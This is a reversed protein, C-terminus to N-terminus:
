VHARGIKSAGALASAWCACASGCAGAVSCAAAGDDAVSSSATSTRPSYMGSGISALGAIMVWTDICSRSRWPSLVAASASRFLTTYPFLTVILTSRPPRRFMLFFFFISILLIFLFFFFLIFSISNYLYSIYFYCYCMSRIFMILRVYLSYFIHLYKFM